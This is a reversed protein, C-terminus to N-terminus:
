HAHLLLVSEREWVRVCTLYRQSWVKSEKLFSAADRKLAAVKSDLFSQYEVLFVYWSCKDSFLSGGHLMKEIIGTSICTYQLLM